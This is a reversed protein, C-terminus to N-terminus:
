VYTYYGGMHKETPRTDFTERTCNYQKKKTQHNGLSYTVTYHCDFSKPVPFLTTSKKVYMNKTM